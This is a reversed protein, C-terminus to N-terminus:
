LSQVYINRMQENIIETDFQVSDGRNRSGMKYILKRDSYMLKIASAFEDVDNYKCIIGNEKKVFGRTGRNDSVILPLGCAMGEIAALGQGERISPFVCVDAAAYLEQIDSRFGLLHVRDNLNLESILRRLEDEMSGNGAIVYHVKQIKGIARIVTGHNKNKNLEGVSMLVFADSPIGIEDRKRKREVIRKLRPVEDRDGWNYKNSIKENVSSLDFNRIKEYNHIGMTERNRSVIMKEIASKINSNDLPDFLFGGAEDLLDTNGRIQGALCPLSSAMAEMLSVNLGERISPLIYADAVDYFDAVDNRFGTLIVRSGCEESLEKLHQELTGIGVIIYVIPMGAIARIVAEQNKNKNLEGVSLLVFEDKLNFEKRIRDRGNERQAFKTIDVGVGPVYETKRAHFRKKAREFDETNITILVDTWFSCIWEIPYYILWNVFPAGTYFHFGHATYFVKVGTKRVKKCALRTCFAAIPTHCHVIDYHNDQVIKKLERIAEINGLSFPSRSCSIPYVICGLEAYIGNVRAEGECENTAIDVINGNHILETILSLFFDM